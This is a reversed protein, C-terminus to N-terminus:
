KEKEAAVVEAPLDKTSVPRKKLVKWLDDGPTMEYYKGESSRILVKRVSPIFVVTGTFLTSGGKDTITFDRLAASDPSLKVEPEPEGKANAKGQNRLTAEWRSGTHYISTLKVYKLVDEPREVSKQAKTGLFVNKGGVDHYERPPDALVLPPRFSKDKLQERGFQDLRVTLWDERLRDPRFTNPAPETGTSVPQPKSLWEEERPPAGRVILAEIKMKVELQRPDLGQRVTQPKLISLSRVEQLLPKRYFDELMLVLGDLTVQGTVDFTLRTFVPAAKGAAPNAAPRAGDTDNPKVATASSFGNRRLLDALYAEYDVKLSQEHRSVDVPVRSRGEPLSLRKWDKLRPAVKFIGDIKNREKRLEAEKTDLTQRTEEIQKNLDLVPKLLFLYSVASLGIGILLTLLIVALM